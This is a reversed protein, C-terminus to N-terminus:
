LTSPRCPHAAHLFILQFEKLAPFALTLRWNQSHPRLSFYELSSRHGSFMNLFRSHRPDTQNLSAYFVCPDLMSHGLRLGTIFSRFIIHLSKFPNLLNPPSRTIKKSMKDKKRHFDLVSQFRSVGTSLLHNLPGLEQSPTELGQQSDSCIDLLADSVKLFNSPSTIKSRKQVSDCNHKSVVKQHKSYCYSKKKKRVSCFCCIRTMCSNSVTDEKQKPHIKGHEYGYSKLGETASCSRASVLYLQIKETNVCLCAQSCFIKLFASLHVLDKPRHLTALM